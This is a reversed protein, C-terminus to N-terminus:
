ATCPLAREQTVASAQSARSLRRNTQLCGALWCRCGSVSGCQIPTARQLKTGVSHSHASDSPQLSPCALGSTTGQGAQQLATLLLWSEPVKGYTHFFICLRVSSYSGSGPMGHDPPITLLPCWTIIGMVGPWPAVPAPWAIPRLAAPCGFQAEQSGPQAQMCLGPVRGAAHIRQVWTQATDAERESSSLSALLGRCRLLLLLLLLLQM